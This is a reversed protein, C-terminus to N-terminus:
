MVNLLPLEFSAVTRASGSLSVLVQMRYMGAELTQNFLMAKHISQNGMLRPSPAIGLERWQHSLRSQVFFRAKCVVDQLPPQQAIQKDLHFVVEVSFPQNHKLSSIGAQKTNALTAPYVIAPIMLNAPQRIILQDIELHIPHEVESLPTHKKETRNSPPLPQTALIENKSVIPEVTEKSTQREENHDVLQKTGVINHRLWFRLKQERIGSWSEPQSENAMVVTQCEIQENIQRYQFEITLRKLSRWSSAMQNISPHQDQDGLRILHDSTETELDRFELYNSYEAEMMEQFSRYRDAEPLTNTGSMYDALFWAEWEGDSNVIKPNLLYISDVLGVDSIEIATKLYEIRLARPDQSEGYVFYEADSVGVPQWLDDLEESDDEWGLDVTDPHESFSKIWQPHRTSFREIDETSWFRHNFTDARKATQRWGNTVKLFARYSPPLQVGLRSEARFIQEETAGPYGLWGSSLVEDPLQQKEEDDMSELIVQSWRHLFHDWDFVSM